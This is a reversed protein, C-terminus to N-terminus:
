KTNNFLMDKTIMSIVGRLVEAGIKQSDTDILSLASPEPKDNKKQASQPGVEFNGVSGRSKTVDKEAKELKVSVDIIQQNTYQRNKILPSSTLIKIWYKNWLLNLLNYDTSSKFYETELTYWHDKWAGLDGVKDSPITQYESSSAQPPKYNEPYTRFSGLDVRGSAQTELPDIVVAVFPDQFQQNQRQTGVDVGSLWCRFGPHSHYWGVVNEKRGTLEGYRDCMDVYKATFEVAQQGMGVRSEPMDNPDTPLAFSDLIIFTDGEVKGQVMGMIEYRTDLTAHMTIKLLALASMKVKKFYHPDKAWPRKEIIKQQEEQNLKYYEDNGVDKVKNETEWQKRAVDKSSSM